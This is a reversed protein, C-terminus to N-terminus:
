NQLYPRRYYPDTIQERKQSKIDCVQVMRSFEDKIKVANSVANFDMACNLGYCLDFTIPEGNSIREYVDFVDPYEEEFNQNIGKLKKHTKFWTGNNLPAFVWLKRWGEIGIDNVILEKNTLLQYKSALLLSEDTVLRDCYM